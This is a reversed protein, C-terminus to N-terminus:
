PKNIISSKSRKEQIGFPNRESTFAENEKKM